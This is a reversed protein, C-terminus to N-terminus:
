SPFGAGYLSRTSSSFLFFSLAKLLFFLFFFFFPSLGADAEHFLHAEATM